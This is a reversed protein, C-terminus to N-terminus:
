HGGPRSLQDIMNYYNMLYRIAFVLLGAMILLYVLRFWGFYRFRKRRRPVPAAPDNRQYDLPGLPTSPPNTKAMAQMM